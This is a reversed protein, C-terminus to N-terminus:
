LSIRFPLCSVQSGKISLLVGAKRRPPPPRHPVHDVKMV